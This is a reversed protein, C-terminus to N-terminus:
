LTEKIIEGITEESIPKFDWVDVGVNIQKHEHDVKWTDHVHGHLVWEQTTQYYEEFRNDYSGITVRKPFHSLTVHQRNDGNLTLLLNQSISSIGADIYKKMHKHYGKHGVWCKDHNGSVLWKQGNLQSILKLNESHKGMILDGLIYVVANKEPVTENWYTILAENM